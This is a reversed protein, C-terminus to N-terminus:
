TLMPPTGAEGDSSQAQQAAGATFAQGGPVAVSGDLGAAASMSAPAASFTAGGLAGAPTGATAGATAGAPTGGPAGAPAPAGPEQAMLAGMGIPAGPLAAAPAPSTSVAAVPRQAAGHPLHMAEASTSASGAAPNPPQWERPAAPAKQAGKPPEDLLSAPATRMPYNSLYHQGLLNSRSYLLAYLRERAAVLAALAAHASSELAQTDAVLAESAASTRLWTASEEAVPDSPWGAGEREEAAAHGLSAGPGSAVAKARNGKPQEKGRSSRPQRRSNIKSPPTKLPRERSAMGSGGAAEREAAAEQEAAVKRRCSQAALAATQVLREVREHIDHLTEIQHRGLNAIEWSALRGTAAAAAEATGKAEAALTIGKRSLTDIADMLERAHSARLEALKGEIVCKAEEREVQLREALEAAAAAKASRRAAEHEAALTAQMAVVQQRAEAHAAAVRADAAAQSSAETQILRAQLEEVTAELQAVRDAEEGTSLQSLQSSLRECAAEAAEARARERELARALPSESTLSPAGSTSAAEAGTAGRSQVFSGFPSDGGSPPSDDSGALPKRQQPTSLEKTAARISRQAAALQARQAPSPM